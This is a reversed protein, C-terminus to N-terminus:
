EFVINTESGLLKKFLGELKEKEYIRIHDASPVRVKFLQKKGSYVINVGLLQAPYLIQQVLDKPNSSEEVIKVRKQGILDSLEKILVGKRGIFNGAMGKPVLVLLMEGVSITQKFESRELIQYRDSLKILARAVDVDSQSIEGQKVKDECGACLIDSTVCVKCIPAKM